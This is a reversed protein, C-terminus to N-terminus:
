EQYCVEYEGKMLWSQCALGQDHYIENNVNLEISHDDPYGPEKNIIFLVDSDKWIMDIYTHAESYYITKKVDHDHHDTIEIWVNVGGVAGGYPEFYAHATYRGTPSTM